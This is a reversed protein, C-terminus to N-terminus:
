SSVGRELGARFNAMSEGPSQRRNGGSRFKQPRIISDIASALKKSVGNELLWPIVEHEGIPPRSPDFEVWYREIAAVMVLIEKTPSYGPINVALGAPANSNESEVAM